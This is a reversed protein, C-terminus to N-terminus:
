KIKEGRQTAKCSKCRLLQWKGKNTSVLGKSNITGGCVRCKRNGNTLFADPMSEPTWARVKMYLEETSLVDHLNYKQMEKWAEANGDLCERWLSFGPFKSHSLKKYKVCLKDTLYELKNSTFQAVRSVIRYTDLHRYPDPPRMGKSIFKANLRPADFGTGYQTIVIDAKNLLKWAFNIISIESHKSLDRYMLEPDGLWKAGVAMLKWDEKIQNLGINQDKLGWVYAVLPSSEIDIVLIKPNLTM